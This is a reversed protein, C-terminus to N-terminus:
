LRSQLEVGHAVLLRAAAEGALEGLEEALVARYEGLLADFARLTAVHELSREHERAGLVLRLMQGARCIVKGFRAALVELCHELVKFSGIRRVLKCRVEKGM